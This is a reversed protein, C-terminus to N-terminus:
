PGDEGGTPIPNRREDAVFYGKELFRLTYELATENSMIFTHLVPLVAFDRAGALRTTAVSVIGDDDGPISRSWGRDDGRGGALVGFECSPTALQGELTAWDKALQQGSPGLVLKFLRSNSWDEARNSGQNPPALMVIRRIRPDPKSLTKEDTEDALYHRIVLNGLSHGVFNIEEAGDLYAVIRALAAAHERLSARTSPYGVSLVTYGGNKELYSCLRGMAGRTRGLGHLVLVVRGKIAPLKRQQRIEELKGRCVEFTGWAHRVNRGDLLRYHGTVVNRQIRWDRLVLEDGWLQAGGLTPVALNPKAAEKVPKDQPSQSAGASEFAFLLMAVVAPIVRVDM